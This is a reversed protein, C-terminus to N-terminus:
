EPRRNFKLDSRGLTIATSTKGLIALINRKPFIKDIKSAARYNIELTKRQPPRPYPPSYPTAFRLFFSLFFFPVLPTIYFPSFICSTIVIILLPPLFTQTHSPEHFSIPSPLSSRKYTRCISNRKEDTEKSRINKEERTSSRIM